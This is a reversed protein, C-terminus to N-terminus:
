VKENVECAENLAKKLNETYHYNAVNEEEESLKEHSDPLVCDKKFNINDEEVSFDSYFLEKSQIKASKNGKSNELLGKSKNQINSLPLRPQGARLQDSM